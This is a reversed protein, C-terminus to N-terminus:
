LQVLDVVSGINRLTIFLGTNMVEWVTNSSHFSQYYHMHCTLFMIAIISWDFMENFYYKEVKEYRTYYLYLAWSMCLPAVSHSGGFPQILDRSHDM